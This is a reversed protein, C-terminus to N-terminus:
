TNEAKYRILYNYVCSKTTGILVALEGVDKTTTEYLEKFEAYVRIYKLSVGHPRSLYRETDLNLYSRDKGSFARGLVSRTIGLASAVEKLGSKGSCVMDFAKIVEADSVKHPVGNVKINDEPQRNNKVIGSLIYKKYFAKLKKGKIISYVYRPCVSTGEVSQKFSMRKEFYNTYITLVEEESYVRHRNLAAHTSAKKRVEPIDNVSKAVNFLCGGESALGYLSILYEEFGYASSESDFYCLIERKITHFYKRIVKNKRNNDKLSWNAFHQNVRNNLGKGVYFPNAEGRKFLAYVYYTDRKYPTAEPNKPICIEM